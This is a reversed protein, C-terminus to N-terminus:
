YAKIGNPTGWGGPGSYTKYGLSGKAGATCLYEGGCSGDFGSTIDHLDKKLAKKKLKWFHEGSGLKAANGALGIIGANFPSAVSTGCVDTWGGYQSVYEAVPPSCGSESSIDGDTRYTCDPDHQWSPKPVGPSGVVTPSSCGAAAGNWITETYKSGSLALQTGGVGIVTALDSPGGITNYGSDGTSALYVVGKTDFYNPFNTDECDWDEPCSWSNSLIKAGLKVAEAEAAEFDSIQGGAEMLYITCKPCSTSVMEIDLDTELCWGYNECSPPYNSQQGTENYKFFSATGLGYETRYTALDTSATSEDGAEIVAVKQGSGKGLSSTLNYAKELQAPTWGCSSSPSCNPDAGTHALLVQCVPKGVAQPCVARAEHKAQWEPIQTIASGLQSSAASSPMNPSGGASCAAIALAAALPVLLKFTRNVPVGQTPKPFNTQPGYEKVIRGM